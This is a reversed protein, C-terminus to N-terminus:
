IQNVWKDAYILFNRDDYSNLECIELTNIGYIKQMIQKAQEQSFEPKIKTGLVYIESCFACFSCRLNWENGPKLISSEDVYEM